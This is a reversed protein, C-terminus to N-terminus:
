SRRRGNIEPTMHQSRTGEWARNVHTFFSHFVLLMGDPVIRSFNVLASGLEAHYTSSSRFAFSSNLSCGSPGQALVGIWVQSPAIIHPNELRIPFPLQLEFAFSDLPALTGSTLLVCHPALCMLERM